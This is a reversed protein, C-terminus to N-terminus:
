CAARKYPSLMRLSAAPLSYNIPREATLQGPDGFDNLDLAPVDRRIASAVAVITAQKVDDPVSSFGWAGAISVRAYGFFRASNSQFLNALNGALRVSTYVGHVPTVPHLQYDSTVTLTLPTADEPHLTFATVSRLDYPALDLKLAGVDLRFTRTATATTPAFERQTWQMVAVSLPTITATILADRSTDAGPLELFARVEALTCLDNAAM